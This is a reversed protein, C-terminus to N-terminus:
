SAEGQNSQALALLAERARTKFESKTESSKFHIPAGFSAHCLLPVPVMEGKPMVRHLNDIWVPVFEMHPRASALHSIGSKFPLLTEDTMNRTGEPFVILSSGEDLADTMLAIPDKSRTKPNRDILVADVVKRGFFRRAPSADWYDSGAVPRTMRRCTKPLASWVMVFDGHSRHNAFYVRPSMSPECGIWNARIGTVVKATVLLGARAVPVTIRDIVNVTQM